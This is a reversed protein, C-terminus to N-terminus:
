RMGGAPQAGSPQVGGSALPPMIVRPLTWRRSAWLVGWNQSIQTTSHMFTEAPMPTSATAEGISCTM